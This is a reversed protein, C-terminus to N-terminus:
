IILVVANNGVLGRKKGWSELKKERGREMQLSPDVRGPVSPLIEQGKLDGWHQFAHM